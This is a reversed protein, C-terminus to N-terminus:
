PDSGPATGPDRGSDGPVAAENPAAGYKLHQLTVDGAKGIFVVFLDDFEDLGIEPVLHRDAGLAVLLAPVTNSHGAVLVTKGQYRSTIKEALGRTNMARYRTVELGHQKAVPQVTQLTREFESALAATLPVAELIHALKDARMRGADSLPPDKEEHSTQEAHRVVYVTTQALCPAGPALLCLAILSVASSVFSRTNDATMNSEKFSDGTTTETGVM